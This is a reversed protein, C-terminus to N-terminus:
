MPHCLVWDKKWQPLGTVMKEKKRRTQDYWNEQFDLTILHRLFTHLMTSCMKQVRNSALVECHDCSTKSLCRSFHINQFINNQSFFPSPKKVLIDRCIKVAELITKLEPKLFKQYTRSTTQLRQYIFFLTCMAHGDIQRNSTQQIRAGSIHTQPQKSRWIIEAFMVAVVLAASLLCVYM